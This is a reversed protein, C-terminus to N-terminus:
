LGYIQDRYEMLVLGALCLLMLLAFLGDVPRAKFVAVSHFQGSFGGCCCTAEKYFTRLQAGAFTGVFWTRYTHMGTRPRFGRLRAAVSLGM